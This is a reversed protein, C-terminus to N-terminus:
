TMEWLVNDFTISGSAVVCVYIRILLIQTYIYYSIIVYTM